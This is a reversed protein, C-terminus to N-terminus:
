GRGCRLSAKERGGAAVDAGAAVFLPILNPAGYEGAARRLGMQLMGTSPKVLLVRKVEEEDNAEIAEILRRELPPAAPAASSDL